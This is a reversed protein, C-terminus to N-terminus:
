LKIMIDFRVIGAVSVLNNFFITRSFVERLYEKDLTSYYRIALLKM